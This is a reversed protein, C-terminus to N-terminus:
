LTALLRWALALLGSLLLAGDAALTSVVDSALGFRNPFVLSLVLCAPCTLLLWGLSPVWGLATAAALLAALGAALAGTLLRTTRAGLLLPLTERGLLRDEQMDGLNVVSAKAFTLVFAFVCAVVLPASFEVGHGVAPVVVCVVMWGSAIFIDKSAPLDKLRTVRLAKRWGSPVLPVSYAVGLAYAVLLLLLAPWARVLALSAVSALGLLASAALLPGEHRHYFGVRPPLFAEASEGIALRNLTTVSFVYCFPALLFVLSPSPVGALQCSAYALAVAALASYVNSRALAVLALWAARLVGPAPPAMDELAQLVSRTVWNPTSAGATLGVVRFRSLAELDLEDATEVHFTPKGTSAAIEALRRTNASHRGGVVVMAEVDGALRLVEQQRERTAQCITDAVEIGPIRERLAAAMQEYAAENFTTQAVLCAPPRVDLCRAEEPTSIVTCRGQAHSILAQVEAHQEDGAIVITRGEAAHREVYRQAALVHPCTADVVALGREALSAKVAEPVGHARIVVTGERADPRSAMDRVGKAELMQIAQRNHILPGHTYVPGREQEALSLAKDMALKVGMCFGATRALRVEL